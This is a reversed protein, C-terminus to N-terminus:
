LGASLMMAWVKALCVKGEGGIIIIKIVHFSNALLLGPGRGIALIVIMMLLPDMVQLPQEAAYAREYIPLRWNCAGLIRKMLPTVEVKLSVEGLTRPICALSETGGESLTSSSIRINPVLLNRRTQGHVQWLQVNFEIFSLYNGVSPALQLTM